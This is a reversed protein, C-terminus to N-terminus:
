ARLLTDVPLAPPPKLPTECRIVLTTLVEEFRRGGLAETDFYVADGGQAQQWWIVFSTPLLSSSAASAQRALPNPEHAIAM